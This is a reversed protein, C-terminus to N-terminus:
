GRDSGLGFDSYARRVRSTAQEYVRLQSSIPKILQAAAKGAAEDARGLM